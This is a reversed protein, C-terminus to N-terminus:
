LFTFSFVLSTNKVVLDVVILFDAVTWKDSAPEFEIGYPSVLVNRGGSGFTENGIVYKLSGSPDTNLVVVYLCSGQPM